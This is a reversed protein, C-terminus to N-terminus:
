ETSPNPNQIHSLILDAFVCQAHVDTELNAPLPLTVKILRTASDVLVQPWSDKQPVFAIRTAASQSPVNEGESVVVSGAPPERDGLDLFAIGRKEFFERVHMSEGVVFLRGEGLKKLRSIPNWESAKGPVVRVFINKKALQSGDKDSVLALRLLVTTMREVNPIPVEVDLSRYTTDPFDVRGLEGGGKLPAVLDDAVQFLEVRVSGSSGLPAGVEMSVKAPEGAYAWLAPTEVSSELESAVRLFPEFALVPQVCAVVGVV